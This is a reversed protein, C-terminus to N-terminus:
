DLVLFVYKLARLIKDAKQPITYRKKLVKAGLNGIFEQLAGFACLFGCFVRNLLIAVLIMFLFFVSASAFPNSFFELGTLTNLFNGFAEFPCLAHFAPVGAYRDFFGHIVAEAVMYGLIAGLSVYRLVSFLKMSRQKKM